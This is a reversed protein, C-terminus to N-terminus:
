VDLLLGAPPRAGGAGVGGAVAPRCTTMKRRARGAGRRLETLSAAPACCWAPRWSSLVLLQRLLLQRGPPRRARSLPNLKDNTVPGTVATVPGTVATVPRVPRSRNRYRGSVLRHTSFKKFKFELFHFIHFFDRFISQSKNLRITDFRNCVENM